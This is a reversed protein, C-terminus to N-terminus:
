FGYQSRSKIEDLKQKMVECSKDGTIHDDKKCHVCKKISSSCTNSEHGKEGCKGCQSTDSRCRRAIHGFAQCRNCKIVRPVHKFEELIFRQNFITMRESIADLLNERTKFTLKVTGHFNGGKKFFEVNSVPHKEKIWNEIATESEDLYVHKIIGSTQMAEPSVVGENGGFMEKKWRSSVMTTDEHSDLEIKLSGGATIRCNRIVVGPFDKNFAKRIDKSNRIELDVPKWVLITRKNRDETEEVMLAKNQVSLQKAIKNAAKSIQPLSKGDNVVSAFTKAENTKKSCEEVKSALNLVNKNIKKLKNNVEKLEKNCNPCFTKVYNPSGKLLDFLKVDMPKDTCSNHFFNECSSCHLGFGTRNREDTVEGSCITCPYCTLNESSKPFIGEIIDDSTEFDMFGGKSDFKALVTENDYGSLHRQFIASCFLLDVCEEANYSAPAQLHLKALVKDLQSTSLDCLPILNM